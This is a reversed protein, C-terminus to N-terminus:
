PAPLAVTALGAETAVHLFRGDRSPALAGPAPLDRALLVAAEPLLEVPSDESAAALAEPQWSWVADDAAIALGGGETWVLARADDHGVVEAVPWCHVTPSFFAGPLLRRAAAEVAAADRRRVPVPLTAWPVLSPDFSPLARVADRLRARHRPDPSREYGAALGALDTTM